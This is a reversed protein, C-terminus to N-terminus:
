YICVDTDFLDFAERIEQKQEPTLNNRSAAAAASSVATTAKKGATKLGGAATTGIGKSDPGGIVSKNINARSAATNQFHM